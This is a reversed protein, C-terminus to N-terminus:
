TSDGARVHVSRFIFNGGFIEAPIGNVEARWGAAWRDTVLLWGDQPCSVKMDFHNPTYRLLRVAIHQLQPLRSIAILEASNPTQVAALDSVRAMDSRPHVVLVPAGLKESRNTLAIYTYNSPTAVVAEPTFWIRDQGLGQNLLVPHQGFGWHFRNKMTSDN